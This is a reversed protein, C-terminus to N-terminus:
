ARPSRAYHPGLLWPQSALTLLLFSALILLALLAVFSALTRRLMRQECACPHILAWVLGLLSLALAAVGSIFAVSWLVPCSHAETATACVSIPVASLTAMTLMLLAVGHSDDPHNRQRETISAEPDVISVHSPSVLTDLTCRPLIDLSSADHKVPHRQRLNSSIEAAAQQTSSPSGRKSCPTPGSQDVRWCTDGRKKATIGTYDVSAVTEAVDATFQALASMSPPISRSEGTQESGSPRPETDGLVTAMISSSSLTVSQCDTRPISSAACTSVQPIIVDSGNTTATLGLSIVSSATPLGVASYHPLGDHPLANSSLSSFFGDM